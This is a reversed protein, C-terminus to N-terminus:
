EVENIEENAYIFIIDDIFRFYKVETHLDLWHKELIYLYLNAVTPGCKCGM